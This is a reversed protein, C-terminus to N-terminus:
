RVRNKRCSIHTFDRSFISRFGKQVVEGYNMVIELSAHGHQRQGQDEHGHDGKVVDAQLVDCDGETYVERRQDNM